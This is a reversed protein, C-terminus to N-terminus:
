NPLNKINYNQKETKMDKLVSNGNKWPERSNMVSHVVISYGNWKYLM